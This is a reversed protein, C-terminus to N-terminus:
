GICLGPSSRRKLFIHRRVWWLYWCSVLIVEQLGVGQFSELDCQLLRLLDKLDVSGSREMLAANQIVEMIGIGSWIEVTPSCQFCLHKADEVGWRCIPCQGDTSIHRNTLISKLPLLEHFARWGNKKSQKPCKVEVIHGLVSEFPIFLLSELTKEQLAGHAAMLGMASCVKPDEPRGMLGVVSMTLCGQATVSDCDTLDRVLKGGLVGLDHLNHSFTRRCTVECPACRPLPGPTTTSTAPRNETTHLPLPCNQTAQAAVRHDHGYELYSSTLTSM